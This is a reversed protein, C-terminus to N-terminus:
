MVAPRIPHVRPNACPSYTFLTGQWSADAEVKIGKEILWDLSGLTTQITRRMPSTIILGANQAVPHAMLSTKLEKLQEFGLESLSPDHIEYEEIKTGQDVHPGFSPPPFRRAVNHLAQAHRILILTPPM